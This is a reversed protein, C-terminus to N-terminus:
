VLFEYPISCSRILNQMCTGEISSLPQHTLISHISSNRKSTFTIEFWVWLDIGQVRKTNVEFTQHVCGYSKSLLVGGGGAVM